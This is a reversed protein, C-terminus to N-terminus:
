ISSIGFKILKAPLTDDLNQVDAENLELLNLEYKGYIAQKQEKRANYKPDDELGWYEVYVRKAPIYFDCYIEEEVPLKREYAHVIGSMYFWNDILMEAKSRVFHGDSARHKAEFKDRFGSGTNESVQVDGAFEKIRELFARNELIDKAWIVFPVGSKPHERQVGGERLGQATLMWGKVEGKTIWGLESLIANVRQASLGLSRGVSTSSIADVTSEEDQCLAPSDKLSEPWAIYEGHQSNRYEGGVGRGAETLEWGAGTRKIFGSSELFSDLERKSIGCSNALKSASLMKESM